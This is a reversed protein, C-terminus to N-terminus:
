ASDASLQAASLPDALLREFAMEAAGILSSDEGLGAPMVRVQELLAEPGRAAMSATVVGQRALWVQALVGGMVIAEPNFINVIARLGIGTWRAVEDLAVAARDDGTVSAAIVQAVASPGGGPLRGAAELLHNEGVRTEWCGLAGCRCPTGDSEVLLHGIEGAYGGSGRLPLGGVLFGGGIGVSGSLYAVDNVGVAAGRLHEAFVGLNADNGTRLPLGVERQLMATFPEDVWGLNPAFRVMGDDARVIGPVSVGVGLCRAASPLSLLEQITQAVSVVVAEADHGGRQHLRERRELVVGGLGVLAGVIRDVDLAVAVVTVDHRPVVLHSPRGAGRSQTPRTESVLGLAELQATLDGITSRNLGLEATLAARSTPGSAHVRSLVASLNVRRLEDQGIGSGRAM